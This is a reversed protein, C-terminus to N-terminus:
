YTRIQMCLVCISRTCIYVYEPLKAALLEVQSEASNFQTRQFDNVQCQGQWFCINARNDGVLFFM